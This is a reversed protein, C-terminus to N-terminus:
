KLKLKGYLSQINHKLSLECQVPYGLNAAACFGYHIPSRNGCLFPSKPAIETVFRLFAADCWYLPSDCMPYTNMSHWIAKRTPSSLKTVNKKENLRLYIKVEHVLLM